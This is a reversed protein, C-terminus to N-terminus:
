LIKLDLYLLAAESFQWCMYCMLKNEFLLKMHLSTAGKTKELNSFSMPMANEYDIVFNCAFRNLLQSSRM